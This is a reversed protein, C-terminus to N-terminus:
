WLRRVRYPPWMRFVGKGLINKKPVLELYIAKGQQRDDGLVLYESKPIITESESISSGTSANILYSEEVFRGDVYLNGDKIEVKEGPLGIIRRFYFSQERINEYYARKSDFLIVDGRKPNFISYTLKDVLIRDNIQYSPNMYDVSAVYRAELIFTRSFYLFFIPLLWRLRRKQNRHQNSFVDQKGPFLPNNALHEQLSSHIFSFSNGTRQLIIRETSVTLFEMYNWPIFGYRWLVLRLGLIQILSRCGILFIVTGFILGLLMGFTSGLFLATLVGFLVCFGIGLIGAGRTTKIAVKIPSIESGLESYQFSSFVGAILSPIAGILITLTTGILMGGLAGTILAIWFEKQTGFLSNLFVFITCLLINIKLYSQFNSRTNKFLVKWSINLNPESTIEYPTLCLWLLNSILCGWVVGTIPIIILALSMGGTLAVILRYVLRQKATELWSPQLQEISFISRSSRSLKQALFILWRHNRSPDVISENAFARSKGRRSLMYNIYVSLLYEKCRAPTNCNRWEDLSIQKYALVMMSLFLPSNILNLISPSDSISIWLTELDVKRLYESIQNSSLPKLFVAGNLNLSTKRHNKYDESRCCVLLSTTQKESSLFENIALICKEQVTPELEDLGDLLPFLMDGQLWKSFQKKRIGYKLRTETQLWTYLLDEDKWSSLSLIIPLPENQDISAREVLKKAVKLLSTTKGSGIKGLILLRGAISTWDLIDIIDKDDINKTESRGRVKVEVDWIRKVDQARYESSVKMLVQNHLSQELRGTIESDVKTLLSVRRRLEKKSDKGISLNKINVQSNLAYVGIKRPDRDQNHNM